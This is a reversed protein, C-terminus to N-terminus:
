RMLADLQAALSDRGAMRAFDAASRDSGNRAKVDAGRLLLLKVSAETGYNAAMMLPTSGNPARADIAAGRDLLLKLVQEDPASAAYHVPTWGDHQLPSGREVLLKAAALDGRLAAMMLPTEGAQNRLAPDLQPHALLLESIGKAGDRLALILPLQGTEDRSNPDFGRSLLQSVTRSDNRKIATFFDEYAGAMACSFAFALVLYAINKFYRM